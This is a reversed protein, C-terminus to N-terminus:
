RAPRREVQRWAGSFRALVVLMRDMYTASAPEPGSEVFGYASPWSPDLAGCSTGQQCRQWQGLDVKRWRDSRCGHACGGCRPHRRLSLGHDGLFEPPAQPQRSTRLRDHHALLAAEKM